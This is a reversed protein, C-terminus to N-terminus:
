RVRKEMVGSDSLTRALINGLCCGDCNPAWQDDGESVEDGFYNAILRFKELFDELHRRHTALVTGCLILAM